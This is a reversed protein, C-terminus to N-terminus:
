FPACDDSGCWFGGDFIPRGCACFSRTFVFGLMPFPFFYLLSKNRDYYFGIWFDYWAFIFKVALLKKFM